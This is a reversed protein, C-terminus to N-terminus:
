EHLWRRSRGGRNTKAYPGRAALEELPPGHIFAVKNEWPHFSAAGLGPAALENTSFPPAYIVTERGTAVEVKEITRGRDIGPGFTERTDYCIFRGDGSFNHNNTDIEHNHATFTVQREPLPFQVNMNPHVCGAALLAFGLAALSTSDNSFSRM